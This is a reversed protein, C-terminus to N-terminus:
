ATTVSWADKAVDSCSQSRAHPCPTWRLRGCPGLGHLVLGSARWAGVSQWSRTLPTLSWNAGRFFVGVVTLVAYSAVVAVLGIRAARAWRDSLRPLVAILVVLSGSAAVIPAPWRAWHLAEQLGLFYWPGKVVQDLGDHLSPSVFLSILAVPALVEVISVLRPWMARAHEAIFIWTFMSATAVHHVYLIQRHGETGFVAVSVLRGAWPVQELLSTVIRLAQQAEADGKLMFGSLMVFAALPLSATTRWWMTRPVRTETWRSLHDWAHAVTLVLFLQGAWYHLNRFFAAAPNTLLLWALSDYPREVDYPLALAIGSLVAILVASFATEGWTSRLTWRPHVHPPHRDPSM